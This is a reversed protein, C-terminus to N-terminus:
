LSLFNPYSCFSQTKYNKDAGFVPEMLLKGKFTRMGTRKLHGPLFVGSLSIRLAGDGGGAVAWVSPM